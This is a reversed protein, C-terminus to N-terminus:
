REGGRIGEVYCDFAMEFNFWRHLSNRRKLERLTYTVRENCEGGLDQILLLPSDLIGSSGPVDYRLRDAYKLRHLCHALSSSIGSTTSHSTGSESRPEVVSAVPFLKAILSQYKYFSGWRIVETVIDDSSCTAGFVNNEELTIGYVIPEKDKGSPEAPGQEAEFNAFVDFQDDKGAGSMGANDGREMDADLKVEDTGYSDIILIVLLSCVNVMRAALLAQEEGLEQLNAKPENQAEPQCTMVLM